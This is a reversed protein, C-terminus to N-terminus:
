EDLVKRVTDALQSMVVPKMIFERFGISKAKEEDITENFGSCLVIPVDPRIAIIKQALDAGTMKPMTMDTLILDISETSQEFARLFTEGDTFAQVRYGFRELMSKEMQAIMPDDDLVWIHESGGPIQEAAHDERAAESAQIKPFLVHFTTGKGTESQFTLHGGYNKVIGHVVSLGLGTGEDKSKTTFYPELIRDKIAPDIGYGTDTVSLRVIEKGALEPPVMGDSGSEAVTVTLRGGRDRMAHYANTCLNMVVQHIQTPCGLISSDGSAVAEHIEITAPLSSRLLKITEKVLPQIRVPRKDHEDHRSFTLIQTVLDRARHGANVVQKLYGRNKSGAPLSNMALETYGLIPMLINNFDHAIGGAMTGIAEMKQSQILQKLLKEKEEETNKRDNIEQQLSVNAKALDTTREEIRRELDDQTQQLAKEVEQRRGIEKKLRFNWALIAGLILIGLGIGNLAYKWIDGPNLGPHYEVEIWRRRIKNEKSVSISALGKNIISALMPWDKRVAFHLDQMEYSVPAAVKLNTLNQKRIWYSVSAINGILADATGEAVARLSQQLTPYSVPRIDTNEKLFGEHSTGAQVAVRLDRFDDLGTMFPMDMRTIAVRHFNIYPKSFILRKERERTKGICPLVDIQRNETRDVVESWALGPVVQLNLGLRCNLIEVYDSAIGSYAGGKAFFEFPAFEPDAGFRIVPHAAVWATEEATLAYKGQLAAPGELHAGAPIWANFISIKKKEPIADLTKNLIATLEPWDSRVGFGQGVFRMDYRAAVKLNSIGHERTLYDNIGLVGVYFDAEGVSVAILGDLATDVMLPRVSPHEKIVQDASSYGKVLAVANKGLDEPGDIRDDEERAMIVLPTPIYVKTFDLYARREPTNVATLVLDVSRNKAADLIQPWSLGEVVQLDVGLHRNILHLFDMTIGHYTGSSDAFSYPAYARDAGVRIVPHDRLWAKEESTLIVTKLAPNIRRDFEVGALYCNVIEHFVSDPDNKMGDLRADIRESLIAGTPSNKAFAFKLQVPNFIIPSKRVNYMKESTSGFLRNVVGADVGGSHIKEFVDRYSGVQVYELDLSFSEDLTRIGHDGVTHIDAEVVAIKKGRLDLLSEVEMGDRTYVAGWNLFVTVESFDYKRRREESSAIDVMIDIQNEELRKLCQAWTGFVYELKWGEEAAIRDLIDPFIGVVVGERNTYIKPPNEYAGVRITMPAHQTAGVAVPVMFPLSLYGTILLLFTLSQQVCRLLPRLKGLVQNNMDISEM